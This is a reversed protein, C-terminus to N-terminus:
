GLELFALAAEPRGHVVNGPMGARGVPPPGAVSSTAPPRSDNGSRSRPGVNQLRARLGPVAGFKRSRAVSTVPNRRAAAGLASGPDCPAANHGRRRGPLLGARVPPQSPHQQFLYRLRAVSRFLRSSRHGVPRPSLPTGPAFCCVEARLSQRRAQGNRDGNNRADQSQPVQIVWRALSVGQLRCLIDASRFRSRTQHENGM